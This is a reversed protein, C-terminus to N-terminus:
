TRLTLMVLTDVTDLTVLMLLMLLLVVEIWFKRFRPAAVCIGVAAITAEWGTCGIARATAPAVNAEARGSVPAKGIAGAAAM